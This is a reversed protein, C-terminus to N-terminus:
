DRAASIRYAPCVTVFFSLKLKPVLRTEILQQQQYYALAVKISKTTSSEACTNPTPVAFLVEPHRGPM